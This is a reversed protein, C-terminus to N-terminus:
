KRIALQPAAEKFSVRLDLYSGLIWQNTTLLKFRLLRCRHQPFRNSNRNIASRHRTTHARHCPRQSRHWRWGTVTWSTATLAPDTPAVLTRAEPRQRCTTLSPHCQHHKTKMRYTSTSKVRLLYRIQAQHETRSSCRCRSSTNNITSCTNFRHTLDAIRPKKRFSGGTQQGRFCLRTTRLHRLSTVTKNSSSYFLWRTHWWRPHRSSRHCTPYPRTTPLRVRDRLKIPLRYRSCRWNSSSAVQNWTKTSWSAVTSKTGSDCRGQKMQWLTSFSQSQRKMEWPKKPSNDKPSWSSLNSKRSGPSTSFNAAGLGWQTRNNASRAWSRINPISPTVVLQTSSSVRVKSRVRALTLMSMSVKHRNSWLPKAPVLWALKKSSRPAALAQRGQWVTGNPFNM